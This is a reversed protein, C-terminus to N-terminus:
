FKIFSILVQYFLVAQGDCFSKKKFNTLAARSHSSTSMGFYVHVFCVPVFYVHRLNTLAVGAKPSNTSTTLQAWIVGMSAESQDLVKTKQNTTPSGRTVSVVSWLAPPSLRFDCSRFHRWPLRFDRSKPHSVVLWHSFPIAPEHHPLVASWHSFPIAPEPEASWRPSLTWLGIPPHHTPRKM